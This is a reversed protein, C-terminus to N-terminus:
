PWIANRAMVQIQMIDFQFLTRSIGQEHWMHARGSKRPICWSRQRCSQPIVFTRYSTVKQNWLDGKSGGKPASSVLSVTTHCQGSQWRFASLGFRERGTGEWEGQKCWGQLVTDENKPTPQMEFCGTAERWEKRRGRVVEVAICANNKKAHLPTTTVPNHVPCNINVPMNYSARMKLRMCGPQLFVKVHSHSHSIGCHRNWWWLPQVLQPFWDSFIFRVASTVHLRQTYTPLCSPRPWPWRSCQSISRSVALRPSLSSKITHTPRAEGM